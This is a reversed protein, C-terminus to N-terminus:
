IDGKEDNIEQARHRNMMIALLVGMGLEQRAKQVPIDLKKAMLESVNGIEKNDLEITNLERRKKYEPINSIDTTM